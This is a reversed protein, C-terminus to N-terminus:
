LWYKTKTKSIMPYITETTGGLGFFNYSTTLHANFGSAILQSSIKNDPGGYFYGTEISLYNKQAILSSTFFCLSFCTTALYYINRKMVPKKQSFNFQEGFSNKM